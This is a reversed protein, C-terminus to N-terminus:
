SFAVWVLVAWVGVRRMTDIPRSNVVCRVPDVGVGGSGRSLEKSIRYKTGGMM